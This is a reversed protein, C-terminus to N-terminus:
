DHGAQEQLNRAVLDLVQEIVWRQRALRSDKRRCHLEHIDVAPTAHRKESKTAIGIFVLGDLEPPANPGLHGTVSAAIDAEPTRELVHSAMEAAIEPSVPGYKELRRRDITLYAIKTRNRYVVMGGCHYDSIGPIATLAGSVLGGTCSEAFVIKRGTAKLLDALCRASSPVSVPPRSDPALLFWDLSNITFGQRFVTEENQVGADL